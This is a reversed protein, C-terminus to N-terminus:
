LHTWDGVVLTAQGVEGRLMKMIAEPVTRHAAGQVHLRLKGRYATKLVGVCLAPGELEIHASCVTCHTRTRNGVAVRHNHRGGHPQHAHLHSQTERERQKSLMHSHRHTNFTYTNQAPFHAQLANISPLESPTCQRWVKVGGGEFQGYLCM